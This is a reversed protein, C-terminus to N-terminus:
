NGQTVRVRVYERYIATEDIDDRPMGFSILRQRAAARDAPRMAGYGTAPRRNDTALRALRSQLEQRIENEDLQRGVAVQRSVVWERLGQDLVELQQRAEIAGPGSPTRDIGALDTVSAFARTYETHPVATAARAATRQAASARASQGVLSELDSPSLRTGYEAIIDEPSKAALRASQEPTMAALQLRLAPDSRVVPPALRAELYSQVGNARGPPLAAMMQPTPMTNTQEVHRYAADLANQEAERKARDEEGFVRSIASLAAERQVRNNAYRQRVDAEM